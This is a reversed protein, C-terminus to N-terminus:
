NQGPLKGILKKFDEPLYSMLYAKILEVLM